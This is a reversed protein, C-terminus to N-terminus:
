NRRPRHPYAVFHTRPLASTWGSDGEIGALSRLLDFSLWRSCARSAPLEWLGAPGRLGTVFEVLGRVREDQGSVGVRRCLDLLLASDFAAHLTLFGQFPVAGVLRAVEFGLTSRDRTERALLHELARRTTDATRLKEHHALCLLV